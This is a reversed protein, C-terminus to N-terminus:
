AAAIWDRAQSTESSPFVKLEGPILFGFVKMTHRIWDVDTVIAIREWRSLHEMGVKFDEWVAGPAIGTFDSGIQYYLRVKKHQKLAEEVRPILVTEYDRKTVHRKCALAVINDSFDPLIEIM